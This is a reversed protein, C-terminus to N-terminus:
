PRSFVGTGATTRGVETGVKALSVATESGLTGLSEFIATVVKPDEALALVLALLTPPKPVLALALALALALLTPPKPISCRGM